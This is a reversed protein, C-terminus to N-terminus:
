ILSKFLLPSRIECKTLWSGSPATVVEVEIESLGMIASEELAPILLWVFRM